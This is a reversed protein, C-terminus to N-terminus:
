VRVLKVMNWIPLYVAFALTLIILSLLILLIPEIISSLQRLDYDVERRYFIAIQELMPGLEGTEESVALMQLELPTFLDSTQAAQTLSNGRQIAEQMDMIERYAYANNTAQAVLSLGEMLSVGSNVIVAFTQAFRLLVIRKLIIGIVPIKLQYKHWLYKGEATKLYYYVATVMLSIIVLLYLWYHNFFGSINILIITVLPLPVNARQYVEAFTPIVFINILIMGTIIVLFILSPYRLSESVQKMASSELELYQNLQLFTEDLRGSNQGVRVMTIMLPSFIPYRQMASALDQGAELNEVIGHLAQIMLSTRANEALQKIAITIPVGTKCLTHMQRAFMSLEDLSVSQGSLWDKIIELYRMRKIKLTIQIPTIGEKLLQIGLNDASQALRTGSVAKGARDRGKYGFTPM